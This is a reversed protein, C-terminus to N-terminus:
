VMRWLGKRKGGEKKIIGAESLKSINHRVTRESIGTLDSIAVASHSPNEHIATLIRKQVDTLNLYSTDTLNANDTKSAEKPRLIALLGGFFISFEPEPNGNTKCERRVKDIGQAWNEVYGASYFVNALTENRRVSKHKAKLTDATWGEPLGGASYIEMRDPYVAITVPDSSRYDKHCVANIVLERVAETPYAYSLMRFAGKYEFTPQIYKDYLIRLVEDPLMILPTEVIDDRVVLNDSDFIGIKLFAGTVATQPRESFMLVASYSVSGNDFLMNFRRLVSELDDKEATPAVRGVEKGRTVFYAVASKSLGSVLFDSRLDMWFKGSERLLIDKLEDKRVM